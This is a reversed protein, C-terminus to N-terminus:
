PLSHLSQLPDAADQFAPASGNVAPPHGTPAVTASKQLQLRDSKSSLVSRPTSASNKM